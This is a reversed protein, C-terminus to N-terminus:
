KAKTEKAARNANPHESAAPVNRMRVNAV